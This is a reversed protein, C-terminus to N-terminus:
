FWVTQAVSTLTFTTRLTGGSYTGGTYLGNLESGTSSGGTYVNYTTGSGLEPSSFIISYYKRMPAFTLLSNSGTDEIHFLTGASLSQSTRLLLSYQTSSGSPGETMNSNTGSVVMLGGSVSFVGNVDVGVEPQSQPGHAVLTGGNMYFGGNGDIADGGTASVFIYGDNINLTSGDDFESDTGYTANLGDDSAHVGIDGGNIFIHPAEIGEVSNTIDITGDNITISKKSKIGDDASSITIEGSEITIASDATVAKAEAYDGDSHPGGPVITIRQGTTTIDISPASKTTGINIDGDTSIGKGGDGSHNLTLEGGILDVNGDAKICPGHYADPEGSENTYTDGDGSSTIELSGSSLSIDGDCSIGRGAEGSTHITVDCSEMLVDTDAKIATCYSPDYGSGSSELVVGGTTTIHLTGGTLEIDQKSNLGKSQDGEVTIDISGGSILITDDCKMADNDDDTNLVTITGGTIEVPGDGGDIGDGESTVDLTGGNMFFGDNVHVGDKETSNITVQGQNIEIYDDSGLGHEDEGFGNIELNGSGTFILQGESFFAADQDEDDPPDAYTAGDTLINTTGDELHVTIKKGTQVNIAPGDLNTIQVGNLRLELKKDSYIKFMGDATTGSLVYNINNIDLASNVVVDAGSVDVSVGLLELPNLVSVATDNYTISVTTDLASSFTISDIEALHFQNLADATQFFATTGAEDFSISDIEAVYLQFPGKQTHIVLINQDDEMLQTMTDSPINKWSSDQISFTISDIDSLHYQLDNGDTKIVTMDQAFAPTSIIVACFLLLYLKKM